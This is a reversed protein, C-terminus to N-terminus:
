VAPLLAGRIHQIHEGIAAGGSDAASAPNCAAAAWLATLTMISALRMALRNRRRSAAPM